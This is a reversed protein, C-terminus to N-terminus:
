NNMILIAALIAIAATVIYGLGPIRGAPATRKLLPDHGTSRTATDMHHWLMNPRKM